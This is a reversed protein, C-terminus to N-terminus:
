KLALSTIKDLIISTSNSYVLDDASADIHIVKESPVNELWGIIFSNMLELDASCAINIRDREALRKEVIVHDIILHIILDPSPLCSRFFSYFEKCLNFEEDSLLGRFHFLRTFGQFDLDLGGDVVAIGAMSRFEQEQKARLLMYDMQNALAYRSDMKFLQQFPRESHQELGTYFGGARCLARVLTTKGAGTNGVVAVIKGM